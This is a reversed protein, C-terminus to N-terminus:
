QTLELQITRALQQHEESFDNAFKKLLEKARKSNNLTRTYKAALLLAVEPCDNADKHQKLYREFLEVGEATKKNQLLTSGLVHHTRKDIKFSPSEQIADYYQQTAKDINGRHTEDAISIRILTEPDEASPEEHNYVPASKVFSNLDRRRLYQRIMLTLDYESSRIIGFTLATFTLIFGSLYGILHVVWATPNSNNGVLSALLSFTDLAVFFGVLLLSPVAYVGIIFFIVLVHIKTKPALVIFAAVVACVSGSAGVVPSLYFLTHIYGGLAGCGLYFLAFGVHGMRDEVAKGFPLLFVMNVIIHMWGAHLFQYTLLSLLHFNLSSLQGESELNAITRIFESQSQFGGSRSIAWQSAFILLNLGIIFYTFYPKKRNEVNTGIPILM